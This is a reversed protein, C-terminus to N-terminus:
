RKGRQDKRSPMRRREPFKWRTAGGPFDTELWGLAVQPRVAYTVNEPDSIDPRFHYKADYAEAFQALRAPETLEEAVGELIVVEDGSELHVGVRPDRALNRGKQSARGTSFLLAEGLWVGWVPMAHPRGDGRVTTIWYNRAAALQAVAQAWPMLGSGSRPGKLGYSKPMKPRGARPKGGAASQSMSARRGKPKRISLSPATRISM